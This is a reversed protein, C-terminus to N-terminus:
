PAPSSATALMRTVEARAFGHPYDALYRAAEKRLRLVAGTDELLRLRDVRATEVLPSAPYTRLLDDILALARASHHQAREAMAGALLANEKALTSTPSELPPPASPAAGSAPSTEPLETPAAPQPVIWTDGGVLVHERGDAVVAVRGESVSVRTVARAGPSAVREVSFKTGHVVVLADDTSVSLEDDPALKPVSLEVKGASLEIRDHRKSRSGGPSRHFRLRASGGIQVTAGDSLTASARAGEGTRLEDGEALPASRPGGIARVAGEHVLLAEGEVGVIGAGDRSARREHWSAVGVGSLVALVAAACAVTAARAFVRRRRARALSAKQSRVHQGEIAEVTRERLERAYDAPPPVVPQRVLARLRADVDTTPPAFDQPKV